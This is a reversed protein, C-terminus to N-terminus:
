LDQPLEEFVACSARGPMHKRHVGALPLLPEMPVVVSQGVFGAPELERLLKFALVARGSVKFTVSYGKLLVTM